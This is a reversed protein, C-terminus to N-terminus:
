ASAPQYITAMCRRIHLKVNLCSRLNFMRFASFLRWPCILLLQMGLKNEKAEYLQLMQLM